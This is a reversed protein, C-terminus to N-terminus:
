VVSALREPARQRILRALGTKPDAPAANYDVIKPAFFRASLLAGSKFAALTLNPNAAFEASSTVKGRLLDFSAQNRPMLVDSDLTELDVARIGAYGFYAVFTDLNSTQSNLGILKADITSAYYEKASEACQPTPEQCGREVLIHAADSPDVKEAAILRMTRAIIPDKSPDLQQAAVPRSHWAALALAVLIVFDFRLSRAVLGSQMM